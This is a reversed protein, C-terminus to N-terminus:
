LWDYVKIGDKRLIDLSISVGEMALLAKFSESHLESLVHTPDDDWDFKKSKGYNGIEEWIDEILSVAKDAKKSLSNIQKVTM